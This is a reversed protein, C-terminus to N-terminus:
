CEGPPLTDINRRNLWRAPRFKAAVGAAARSEFLPGAALNVHNPRAAPDCWFAIPSLVILAFPV